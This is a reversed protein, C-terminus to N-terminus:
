QAEALHQMFGAVRDLVDIEGMVACHRQQAFDRRALRRFHRHYAVFPQDASRGEQATAMRGNAGHHLDDAHRRANRGRAQAPFELRVVAPVAM